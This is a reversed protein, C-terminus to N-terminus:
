ASSLVASATAAKLAEFTCQARTNSADNFSMGVTARPRIATFLVKDHLCLPAQAM